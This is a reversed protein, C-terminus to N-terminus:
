VRSRRSVSLIYGSSRAVGRCGAGAPHETAPRLYSDGM